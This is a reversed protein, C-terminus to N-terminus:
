EANGKTALLGELAAVERELDDPTYNLYLGRDKLFGNAGDISLDLLAAVQGLSLKGTRYGEAALGEKLARALNGDWAAQLYEELKRPLDLTITM